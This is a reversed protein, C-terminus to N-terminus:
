VQLVSTQDVIGLEVVMIAHSTVEGGFKESV